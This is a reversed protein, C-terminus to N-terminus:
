RVPSAEGGAFDTRGEVNRAPARAKFAISAGNSIRSVRCYSRSSAPGCAVMSTARTAVEM